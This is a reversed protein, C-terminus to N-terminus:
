CRRRFVMLAGLAVGVLALTGPEPIAIGNAYIADLEAETAAGTYVAVMDIGGDFDRTAQDGGISFNISGGTSTTASTDIARSVVDDPDILGIGGIYLSSTNTNGDFVAAVMTWGAGVLDPGADHEFYGGSVEARLRGQANILMRLDAGNTAGGTPSYSLISGEIALPNVWAVFTKAGTGALGAGSVNTGLDYDGAAGTFTLSATSGPAPSASGWSAAATSLGDSATAALSASPNTVQNWSEGAGLQYQTTTAGSGENLDWAAYLTLAANAGTAVGFAMLGAILKTKMKMM